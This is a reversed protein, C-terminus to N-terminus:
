KDKPLPWSPVPPRDRQIKQLMETLDASSRRRAYAAVIACLVIFGLLGIQIAASIRQGRTPPVDAV